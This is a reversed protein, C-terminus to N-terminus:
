LGLERARELLAYALDIPIRIERSSDYYYPEITDWSGPKKEPKEYKVHPSDAYSNLRAVIMDARLKEAEKREREVDKAAAEAALRAQHREAYDSWLMKVNAAPAWSIEWGRPLKKLSQFVENRERHDAGIKSFPALKQVREEYDALTYGAADELSAQGNESAYLWEPHRNAVLALVRGERIDLVYAPTFGKFYFDNPPDWIKSDSLAKSGFAYVTENGPVSVQIDKQRM